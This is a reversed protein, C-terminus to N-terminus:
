APQYVLRESRKQKLSYRRKKKLIDKEMELQKVRQKLAKIQQQEDTLSGNGAFPEDNKFQKIRRHLMSVNIGLSSAAEMQTYGQETVLSIAGAKFEPSYKKRKTM